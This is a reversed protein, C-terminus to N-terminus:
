KLALSFAAHTKSCTKCEPFTIAQMKAFVCSAVPTSTQGNVRVSSVSGNGKILFELDIKKVAPNRGAEERLCGGLLSFKQNMVSQIQEPSLTDDGETMDLTQTDDFAGNKPGKRKGGSHTKKPPPPDVKFSIAMGKLPDNELTFQTGTKVVQVPRDKVYKWYVGGGFLVVGVVGLCGMMALPNTSKKM